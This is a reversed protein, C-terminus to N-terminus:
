AVRIREAKARRQAAPEAPDYDPITAAVDPFFRRLTDWGRHREWAAEAVLLTTVAPLASRVDEGRRRLEDMVLPYLPWM